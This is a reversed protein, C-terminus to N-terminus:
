GGCRPRMPQRILALRNVLPQQGTRRTVLYHRHGRIHDVAQDYSLVAGRRSSTSLCERGGSKLMATQDRQAAIAPPLHRWVRIDVQHKQKVGIRRLDDWLQHFLHEMGQPVTSELHAMAHTRDLVAHIQPESIQRNAGRHHFRPKEGPAGFEKLLEM